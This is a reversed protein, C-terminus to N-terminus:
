TIYKGSPLFTSECSPQAKRMPTLPRPRPECVTLSTLVIAPKSFITADSVGPERTATFIGGSDAYPAVPEVYGGTGAADGTTAYMSSTDSPLM